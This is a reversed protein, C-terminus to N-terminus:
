DDNDAGMARIRAAQERLVHNGNGLFRLAEALQAEAREARAKQEISAQYLTDVQGQAYNKQLDLQELLDAVDQCEDPYFSKGDRLYGLMGQVEESTPASLAAERERLEMVETNAQKAMQIMWMTERRWDEVKRETPPFEPDWDLSQALFAGITIIKTQAEKTNYKM